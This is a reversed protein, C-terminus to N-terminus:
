IDATVWYAQGIADGVMGVKFADGIIYSEPVVENLEDLLDKDTELGFAAVATDCLLKETSGDEKEIIVGDEAFEIVTSSGALKVNNDSLLRKLTPKNFFTLDNYFMDEPIKDVLTVDKGEMALGLACESGSLGAGCVVVRHGTEATKKDVEAVDKVNPGSIGKIPPLLPKAGVAIILADPAETKITQADVKKGLIIKAGSNITKNIQFEKYARFGEKFSLASSEELRGGLKDDKEYLVVEHGRQTLYNTAAMGAPGAGIIMFKKKKLPPTPKTARYEWGMTPNVACGAIHLDNNNRRLCYLCRLCPVIEKELGRAGKNVFETDAMLAKAMAVIDAKGSKIIEEAHELTSIGGVVSVVLEPCAEKFAAAHGVNVGPPIYYNPMNYSFAEGYELNGTSVVIMDIYKQAEKLFRIREDIKTGGPMREDGVIRMELPIKGKVTSYAAELLELPFKWRNQESGGYADGRQNWLTSLFGSMLNGHAYHIMAMDFHSKVCRNLAAVFDDIVTLMQARTIERFRKPDHYPAVVSPVWAQEGPPLTFAAWQGAHILEASLKCDYRHLENALMTLGQVDDDCTASLCGFFDRGEKFNVPTSGITVLSAGTKGQTSVFDFLERTVSGSRLGAHNSVIPSYQIRNKLRMNGVEIPQYVHPFNNLPM